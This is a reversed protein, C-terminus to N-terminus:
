AKEKSCIHCHTRMCNQFSKGDSQDPYIMRRQLRLLTIMTHDAEPCHKGFTPTQSYMENQVLYKLVAPPNYRLPKGRFHQSMKSDSLYTDFSQSHSNRQNRTKHHIRPFTLPIHSSLYIIKGHNPLTDRVAAAAM